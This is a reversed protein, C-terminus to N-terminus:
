QMMLLCKQLRIFSTTQCKIILMLAIPGLFDLHSNGPCGPCGEKVFFTAISKLFTQIILLNSHTPAFLLLLDVIILFMLQLM